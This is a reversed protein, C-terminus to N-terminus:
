PIIDIKRPRQAQYQCNIKNSKNIDKDMVTSEINLFTFYNFFDKVDKPSLPFEEIWTKM